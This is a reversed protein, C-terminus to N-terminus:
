DLGPPDRHVSVAAKDAGVIVGFLNKVALTLTMECHTKLKPLNVVKDFEFVERALDIRRYLRGDPFEASIKEMFPVAQVGLRKMFPDYGSKTLVRSLKGCPPSDGLFPTAGCDIVM